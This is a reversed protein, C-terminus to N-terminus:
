YKGEMQYPSGGDYMQIFLTKINPYDPDKQNSINLFILLEMDDLDQLLVGM